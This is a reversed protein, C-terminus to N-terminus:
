ALFTKYLAFVAGVLAWAGVGRNVWMALKQEAETVRQTLTALSSAMVAQREEFLVLRNIASTLQDVKTELRIFDTDTM